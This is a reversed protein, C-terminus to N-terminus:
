RILCANRQSEKMRPLSSEKELLQIYKDALPESFIFSRWMYIRATEAGDVVPMIIERPKHHIMEGFYKTYSLKGDIFVDVYHDQKRVIIHTWKHLPVDTMTITHSDYVDSLTYIKIQNKLPVATIKLMDKNSQNLIRVIVDEDTPSTNFNSVFIWSSFTYHEGYLSHLSKMIDRNPSKLGKLIETGRKDQVLEASTEDNVHIVDRMRQRLLLGVFIVILIYKGYEDSFEQSLKGVTEGLQLSERNSYVIYSLLAAFILSAILIWGKSPYRKYLLFRDTSTMESM